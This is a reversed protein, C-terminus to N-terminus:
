GLLMGVGNEGDEAGVASGGENDAPPVAVPSIGCVKAEKSLLNVKSSM